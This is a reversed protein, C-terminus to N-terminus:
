TGMVEQATVRWEFGRVDSFVQGLKLPPMVGEGKMAACFQPDGVRTLSFSWRQRGMAEMHARNAVVHNPPM